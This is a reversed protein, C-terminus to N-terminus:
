ESALLLDILQQLQKETMGGIVEKLINGEADIVYTAPISSVQYARGASAESDYFVPFTYGRQTLVADAAAREDSFTVNIMLFQIQDGYEQAKKNFHPLEALCPFCWSAWFNVIVKQGLFDSLKVENGEADYVTFDPAVQVQPETVPPETAVPLTTPPTTPQTTPAVTPQTTPAATPLTTPKTQTTAPQTQAMTTCGCLLVVILLVCLLFRVTKM